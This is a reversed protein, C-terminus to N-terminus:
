NYIELVGILEIVDNPNGKPINIRTANDLIEQEQKKLFAKDEETVNPYQFHGPTPYRTITGDHNSSYVVLSQYGFKGSLLVTERPYTLSNEDSPNIAEGAPRHEVNLVFGPNVLEQKYQTGMVALWVRAYEIQEDSYNILPNEPASSIQADSDQQVMIKESSITSTTTSSSTNLHTSRKGTTSESSLNTDNEKSCGILFLTSILLMFGIKKM